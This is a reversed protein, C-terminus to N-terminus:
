GRSRENMCEALMKRYQDCYYDLAQERNAPDGDTEFYFHANYRAAAYMFVASLFPMAWDESLQNALNIFEEAVEHFDAEQM